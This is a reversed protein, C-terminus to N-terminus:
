FKRFPVYKALSWWKLILAALVYFAFSWIIDAVGMFICDLYSWKKESNIENNVLPTMTYWLTYTFNVLASICWFVFWWITQRKVPKFMYYYITSVLFSELVMILGIHIYGPTEFLYNDLEVSYLGNTWLYITDFLEEM